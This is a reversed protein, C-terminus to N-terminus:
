AELAACHGPGQCYSSSCCRHPGVRIGAMKACLPAPLLAETRGVVIMLKCDRAIVLTVDKVVQPTSTSWGFSAQALRVRAADASANLWQHQLNENHRLQLPVGTRGGISTVGLRADTLSEQILFEQVRSFCRLAAWGVPIGWVLTALPVSLLNLAALSTIAQSVQMGQSGQLKAVIAYTMFIALTSVIQPLNVLAINLCQFKRYRRSIDLEDDRMKQAHDRMMVSLGLMKIGKISNLVVSTFNIRHQIAELWRRQLGSIGNGAILQKGLAVFIPAVCVAGLQTYLLYVAIATQLVSSVLNVLFLHFTEAIRQVDTSVLSIMASERVSCVPLVIMRAYILLILQGRMSAMMRFTLQTAWGTAIALGVYVLAFGGLLGYGEGMPRTDVTQVYNVADQILYTQGFSLGVLLLKPITIILLQSWLSRVCAYASAHNRSQNATDWTRRIDAAVRESGLREHVLPLKDQTLVDHSGHRLLPNLWWFSARSLLGSTGERSFSYGLSAFNCRKDWAEFVLMTATIAVSVTLLGASAVHNHFLWQTRARVIDFLLTVILFSTILFSPRISRTHELHSIVLLGLGAALALVAAPISVRTQLQPYLAVDVLVALQLLSYLFVAILKSSHIANRPLLRPQRALNLVRFPLLILLVSAPAVILFSEEFLVTFDFGGRCNSTSIGPGITDDGCS